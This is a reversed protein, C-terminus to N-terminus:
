QIQSNLFIITKLFFFLKVHFSKGPLGNTLVTSRRCLPVLKQTQDPFNWMSRLAPLFFFLSVSFTIIMYLAFIKFSSSALLSLVVYHNGTPFPPFPPMSQQTYCLSLSTNYLIPLVALTKYYSIKLITFIIFIKNLFM